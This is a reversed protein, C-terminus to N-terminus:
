HVKLSAWYTPKSDSGFWVYGKVHYLTSDHKRRQKEIFGLDELDALANCVISRSYGTERMITDISPYAVGEDGVHLAVCLFCSLKPGKLLKLAKQRFAVKIKVYVETWPIAEGNTDYDVGQERVVGIVRETDDTM